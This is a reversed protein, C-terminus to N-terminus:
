RRVAGCRLVDRYDAFLLIEAIIEVPLSNLTRPGFLMISRSQLDAVLLGTTALHHSTLLADTGPRSCTKFRARERSAWTTKWSCCTRTRALRSLMERRSEVCSRLKGKEPCLHDIRRRNELPQRPSALGGPQLRALSIRNGLAYCLRLLDQLKPSAGIIRQGRLM